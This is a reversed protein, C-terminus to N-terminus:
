TRVPIIVAFRSGKGARSEVTVDGKLVEAALKKTLYLGLGTGPVKTRLPSDLRVFSHFLRPLGDEQIGIGTDTVSIEIFDGERKGADELKGKKKVDIAVSGRETFKVANSVLNMVCQLLRRRDSRMPQHLNEVAFELGKDHAEKEFLRAVESVVDHLDFDEAHVDIAGAEIKSVDIVDNILALLHKGSRLVTALNGKQEDNVAGAWENLLISTFGIISNLPTRLEHSMSAIFLSKLRDVEKLRANAEELATTREKVLEELHNRHKELEQGARKRETIVESFLIIGGIEDEKEYWPRIEWRVWDANGDARPFIEEDCKEVAGGLCRQHIEKWHEPMEPFVEYHSRGVLNQDGLSYDGLYRRSAAIYKMDRDFMAIAAPSHEVFLRLVHENRQLTEEAGKRGTIDQNVVIAGVIENEANRLPVASNLITKKTGDFCEIDIEEDISTEGKNIARALAWEEAEIKKGTDAWWGKYEGYQEIGVYKAGAWIARGAENGMTITGHADTIWVGVPLTEVVLRILAESEQLAKEAKKRETIDQFFISLGGKSPYIRNEFWRDYPPYYEEMQIPTQKEAARYYAHYFPQGIGEPFETWIHKGILDERRRHFIEAAKRNVYTYRWNADLAVFADTVREFIDAITREAERAKLRTRLATVGYALDDALETLLDMEETRFADPEAAYINLAGFSRGEVNLPLAISSAYGRKLAEARWPLYDPESLINRTVVPRGTRIATGTPGRGREGDAWTIDLTELYGEEYGQHSVPRVTKKEDHEAYGVWALRYGATKVIIKCIDHLLEPEGAARILSQSCESLAKLARNVRRLEKEASRIEVRYRTILEYLMWATLAVFFWGKYTQMRTLFRADAPLSSLMRDSFLIWLGGAIAYIAAIRFPTFKGQQRKNPSSTTTM